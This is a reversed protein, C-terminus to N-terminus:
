KEEPLLAIHLEKLQADDVPAPAGSMLESSNSVKPFAVVDRINDVGLLYGSNDCLFNAAIGSSRKVPAPLSMSRPALVTKKGKAQEVQTSSVGELTGDPTLYLVFSVKVPGWGPAAIKGAQALSQYYETLAQLIM